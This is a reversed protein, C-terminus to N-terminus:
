SVALRAVAVSESQTVFGALVLVVVLPTKVPLSSNKTLTVTVAPNSFAVPAADSIVPAPVVAVPLVLPLM